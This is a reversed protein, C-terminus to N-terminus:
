SAAGAWRLTPRIPSARLAPNEFHLHGDSQYPQGALKQGAAYKSQYALVLEASANVAEVTWPNVIWGAFSTVQGALFLNCGVFGTERMRYRPIEDTAPRPQDPPILSITGTRDDWPSAALNPHDRYQNAFDIIRQGLEDRPRAIHHPEPWGEPLDVEPHEGLPTKHRTPDLFVPM